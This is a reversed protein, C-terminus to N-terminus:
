MIKSRMRTKKPLSVVDYHNPLVVGVLAPPPESRSLLEEITIHLNARDYTQFTQEVEPLTSPDTGFHKQLLSLLQPLKAPKKRKPQAKTASGAKKKAM